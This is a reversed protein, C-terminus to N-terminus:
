LAALKHRQQLTKLASASIAKIRKDPDQGFYRLLPEDDPDGVEGLTAIAAARLPLTAGPPALMRAIPLIERAKMLGCLRVATIRSAESCRSDEALALATAALKNTDIHPYTRSLHELGLLATGAITTDKEQVAEWLTKAVDNTIAEAQSAPPRREYCASLYQVCYDRWVDDHRPDHYMRILEAALGPTPRDQRLLIDAIDNKVANLEEPLLTQQEGPLVDLFRTLAQIDDAPLTRTLQRMAEMREDYGGPM